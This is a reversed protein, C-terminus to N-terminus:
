EGIEELERKLNCTTNQISFKRATEICSIRMLKLKETDLEILTSLSKYVGDADSTKTIYGNMGNNIIEPIGGVNNAICPVGYAMAEVISIGFVEQCISPYVFVDTKKLYNGINRKTGTFEIENTLNLKRTLSQLNNKYAGDGIIWVKIKKNNEKLKLIAHILLEVGKIEELRGIYTIRTFDNNEKTVYIYDFTNLEVGNYVVATKTRDIKFNSLYSKRGAESVFIIKNSRKLAEEICWKACVKKILSKYSYNYKKEFCSHITMVFKKNEFKRSLAIYYAHLAITCHHTVIVDADEVLGCLMKWRNWSYKRQSYKVLSIVKYGNKKMEEYITGEEFLFCFVNEYDSYKAINNCLQEIGGVGGASLLNLVKM